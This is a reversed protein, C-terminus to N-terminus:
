LAGASRRPKKKPSSGAGAEDREAGLMSDSRSMVRAKV